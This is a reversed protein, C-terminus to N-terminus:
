WGLSIEDWSESSERYYAAILNQLDWFAEQGVSTLSKPLVVYELDLLHVFAYDGITTIGENIVLGKTKYLYPRGSEIPYHPNFGNKDIKSVTVGNYTGPIELYDPLDVGSAAKVSYTGDNLLTFIFYGTGTWICVGDVNIKTLPTGDFSAAEIATITSGNISNIAM